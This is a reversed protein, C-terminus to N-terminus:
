ETGTGQSAQPWRIRVVREGSARSTYMHSQARRYLTGQVVRIVQSCSWAWNPLREPRHAVELAREPLTHGGDLLDPGLDAAALAGAVRLAVGAAHALGLPPILRM